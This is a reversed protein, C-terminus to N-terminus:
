SQVQDFDHEDDDGDDGDDDGDGGDYAGYRGSSRPFQQPRAAPLM